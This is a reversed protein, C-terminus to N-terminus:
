FPINPDAGNPDTVTMSIEHDVLRVMNTIWVVDTLGSLSEPVEGSNGAANAANVAISEFAEKLKANDPTRGTQKLILAKMKTILERRVDAVNVGPEVPAPAPESGQAAVTKIKPDPVGGPWLHEFQGKYSKLERCFRMVEIAATNVQPQNWSALQRTWGEREGHNRMGVVIETEFAKEMERAWEFVSKGHTPIKWNDFKAIPSSEKQPEPKRDPIQRDALETPPIAAASSVSDIPPLERTPESARQNPDLFTPIGKKYLYRGIGWADQAARRFANTYGSKEDNDVDYEFEGTAKNTAGMEEFGAGDEKALWDWSGDGFPVRISLRCKYGRATPEYEPKWGSPGCVSDLRNTISRKDLYVLEKGGRKTYSLSSDPFPAFLERWFALEHPTLEVPM